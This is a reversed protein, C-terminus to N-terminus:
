ISLGVGYVPLFCTFEKLLHPHKQFLVAVEHYVENISKNGKMYMNLIELFAKYVHEDNQFRAKIKNVYNIAQDFEVPQKKEELQHSQQQQQQQPQVVVVEAPLTIEYGEPLFTNFGLILERHGQFLEKVREIVGATDILQAKFDEITALFEEYKGKEDNFKQKVAKLYSLADEATLKQQEATLGQQQQQQQQVGVEAKEGGGGGGEGVGGGAGVAASPRKIRPGGGGGKGDDRSCKM